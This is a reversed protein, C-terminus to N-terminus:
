TYVQCYKVAMLIKFAYKILMPSMHYQNEYYITVTLINDDAADSITYTMKFLGNPSPPWLNFKESANLKPM